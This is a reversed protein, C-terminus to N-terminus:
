SALVNFSADVLTEKPLVMSPRMGYSSTLDGYEQGGGNTAFYVGGSPYINTTRSWWAYAVGGKYAIRKPALCGSFYSWCAGDKVTTSTSYNVEIASPLFVKASLGSTGSTPQSTGYCHPIKVEKVISQISSDLMGLFEKNLWKHMFSTGYNYKGNGDQLKQSAYIENMMLWTGDCSSDYLSSPVGQHVVLFQTRTGNVNMYVSSGVALSSLPAGGSFCGRAVGSVGRWANKVKRSVGSVGRSPQKVKRAVGSVGRYIAKAM